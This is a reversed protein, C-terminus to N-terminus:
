LKGLDKLVQMAANHGAAGIVSGAPHTGASCSYLGELPLAYPVRDDFGFINDIHHIHGRTIGFHSEVSKPSLVSMDEVLDSTGPAFEDCISLLHRAYGESREEWTGQKLEYPAWQVFLASSQHGHEDTLSPDVPTQIYWEITPFDALEGAMAQAHATKVSAVVDDVQPLLHMTGHHQGKREPLCKFTPLDRLCLNIKLTTGDRMLSDLKTNFAEPLAERGVMDRTRYPDANSVILDAALHTGDALTVGTARNGEREIQAVPAGLRIQAGAAQAAEAFLRSVTGMGGKVVMWTGDSGGLRCMNHVLFNMGTGPTDWGGSSGSFADTVAYMAPILSNKFEFRDMYDGISGRCLKIFAEQLHPRVYREATAEISLPAELWTPAIDDRIAAMEESIATYALFDQESFFEVFQRRMQEQDSGFLLYRSDTTPLFYHPDRRITPIQVGMKDMIEPPMLGLLYAGTSHGMQPAKAFPYETRVAGGVVDAREVVCVSLGARALLTAAVLGNHGAGVVIADFRM